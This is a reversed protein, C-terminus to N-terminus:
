CVGWWQSLATSVAFSAVATALPCFSRTASPVDAHMRMSDSHRRANRAHNSPEAEIRKLGLLTELDNCTENQYQRTLTGNPDFSSRALSKVVTPLRFWVFVSAARSRMQVAVKPSHLRFHARHLKASSAQGPELAALSRLCQLLPFQGGHFGFDTWVGPESACDGPERLPRLHAEMRKGM